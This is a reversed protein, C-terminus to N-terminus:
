RANLKMQKQLWSAISLASVNTKYTSVEVFVNRYIWYVLDTPKASSIVSLTGLEKPGRIDTITMTTVADAKLLLSEGARNNRPDYIDISVSVQENKRTFSLRLYRTGSENLRSSKELNWGDLEPPTPFNDWNAIVQQDRREAALANEYGIVRKFELLRPSTLPDYFSGPSAPASNMIVGLLIIFLHIQKGM